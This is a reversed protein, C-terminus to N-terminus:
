KKGGYIELEDNIIISHTNTSQATRKLSACDITDYRGIGGRRSEGGM